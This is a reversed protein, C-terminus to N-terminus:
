NILCRKFRWTGESFLRYHGEVNEKDNNDACKEAKSPFITSPNRTTM